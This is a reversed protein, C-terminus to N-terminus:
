QGNTAQMHFQPMFWRKRDLKEADTSHVEFSLDIVSTALNRDLFYTCFESSGSSELDESDESDSNNSDVNSRKPCLYSRWLLDCIYCGQSAALALESAASHHHGEYFDEIFDCRFINQCANCLM